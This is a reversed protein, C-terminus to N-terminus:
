DDNIVGKDLILWKEYYLRGAKPKMFSAVGTTYAKVWEGNANNFRVICGDEGRYGEIDGGVPMRAFDRGKSVYRDMSMEPFDKKLHHKHRKQAKETM